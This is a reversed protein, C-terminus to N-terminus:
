SVVNPIQQKDVENSMRTLTRRKSESALTRDFPMASSTYGTARERKSVAVRHTTKQRASPNSHTTTSTVNSDFTDRQYHRVRSAKTNKVARTSLPESASYQVASKTSTTSAAPIKTRITRLGANAANQEAESKTRGRGSGIEIDDGHHTRVASVVFCKPERTCTYKLTGLVQNNQDFLEKLRTKADYLDERRLSLTEKDLLKELLTYCIQYGSHLGIRQDVLWETVGFFAEFIDELTRHIGHHLVPTTARVFQEFGLQRAFRTFAHQSILNIKLRTLTCVGDATQLHPFRRTLYWLICKNVTSDGILEFFEYNNIPDVGKHTFAIKYMDLGGNSLLISCQENSLAPSLLSSIFEKFADYPTSM